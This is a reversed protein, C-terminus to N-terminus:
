WTGCTDCSHSIFEATASSSRRRLSVGGGSTRWASTFLAVSRRQSQTSTCPPSPNDNRTVMSKAHLQGGEGWCRGSCRCFDATSEQQSSGSHPHLGPLPPHPPPPNGVLLTDLFGHDVVQEANIDYLKAVCVAATKRVYPDEDQRAGDRVPGWGRRRWRWAACPERGWGGGLRCSKALTRTACCDHLRSQSIQICCVCGSVAKM